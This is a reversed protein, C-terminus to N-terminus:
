AGDIKYKRLIKKYTLLRISKALNEGEMKEYKSKLYFM